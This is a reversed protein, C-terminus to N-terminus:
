EKAVRREESREHLIKHHSRITLIHGENDQVHKLHKVEPYLLLDPNHHDKLPFLELLQDEQHSSLADLFVKSHFRENWHPYSLFKQQKVVKIYTHIHRLLLLRFPRILKSDNRFVYNHM